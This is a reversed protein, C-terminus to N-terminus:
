PNPCTFPFLRHKAQVGGFHWPAQLPRPSGDTQCSSDPLAGAGSLEQRGNPIVTPLAGLPALGEALHSLLLSRGSSRCCVCM